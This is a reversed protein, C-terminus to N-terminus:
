MSRGATEGESLDRAFARWQRVYLAWRVGASLFRSSGTCLPPWSQVIFKTGANCGGWLFIALLLSLSLFANKAKDAVPQTLAPRTRFGLRSDPRFERAM